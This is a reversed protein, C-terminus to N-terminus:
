QQSLFKERETARSFAEELSIKKSQVLQLLSDDMLRMGEERGLQMLTKIQWIRDDRILNAIAPNVVMFETALSRGQQDINPVLQQAIVGRLVTALLTRVHERHGEPFLDLIRLISQPASKTHLTGLVLHGTEAATLATAVTDPDRMEGVVIVDPDERLASRLGAAFTPAHTPIERQSVVSKKNRHVVEIPEELTIIHRQDRENIRDLLMSLTTSKGSGTPGTVLVLGNKNNIVSLVSRPLGLEEFAQAEDAIARFVGAMGLTHVFVNLRFRGYDKHNIAVDVHKNQRLEQRQEPTLFTFLVDEAETASLAKRPLRFLTGHLRVAPELGAGLHLDSAGLDRTIKLYEDPSINELYQEVESAGSEPSVVPDIALKRKQVNLISAVTKEDLIKQEILIEGLPRPPKLKAQVQLARDLQDPTILHFNLLIQGLLSERMSQTGVPLLTHSHTLLNTAILSSNM